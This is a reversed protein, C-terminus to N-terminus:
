IPRWTQPLMWTSAAVRGSWGRGVRVWVKKVEKEMGEEREMRSTRWVQRSGGKWGAGRGGEVGEGRCRMM